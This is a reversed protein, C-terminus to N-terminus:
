HHHGRRHPIDVPRAAIGPNAVCSAMRGSATLQCQQNSTFGCDGSGAFEEGQLCYRYDGAAVRTAGVALITTSIAIALISSRM